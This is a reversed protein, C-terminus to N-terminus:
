LRLAKQLEALAEDYRKADRLPYSAWERYHALQLRNNKPSDFKDLNAERFEAARRLAAIVEESSGGENQLVACIRQLIDGHNRLQQEPDPFAKSWQLVDKEAQHLEAVSEKWLKMKELLDSVVYRSLMHENWQWPQITKEAMQKTTIAISRRYADLAGQYDGMAALREGHHQFVRVKQWLFYDSDSFEAVNSLQETLKNAIIDFKEAEAPNEALNVNDFLLNVTDLKLGSAMHDDPYKKLHQECSEIFSQLAAEQQNKPLRRIRDYRMTLQSYHLSQDNPFKSILETIITDAENSLKNAEDVRGTREIAISAQRLAGVLGQSPWVVDPYLRAQQEYMGRMNQYTKAADEDAGLQLQIEAIKWYGNARFEAAVATDGEIKTLQDFLGLVRTLFQRENETLKSTKSFLSRMVDDTVADLAARAQRNGETALEANKNALDRQEDARQREKSENDRSVVAQKEALIARNMQWLSVILGAILALLISSAAIVQRKNRRIFKRILYAANPPGAFVPEDALYRKIEMALQNATEYRRNRDKELCKLAIWDLDGRISRALRSPDSRRAAALSPRADSSSLRTSPKSPEEERIIRIVEDMAAKRIRQSDFPKLGTLLEYLIVGLAYIDARTDIDTGSYGAQEPAMYEITGIVAGFQTSLTRDHSNGALAKSVGFDIVKPVPRGDILTVLINTPKLDRHIIGKQHAHQVASCIQVFIELREETSLIAEDCFKTLPLGNVLEMAFYPRGDGTMGADIVRAINPHDMVALAQREHEFRSLVERSDMGTKILKLAVRRKVPETQKAVWVAGMGGEGLLRELTYPGISQGMNDHRVYDLTKSNDEKKELDAVAQKVNTAAIPSDLLNSVNHAKLLREIRKRLDPLEVCERDMLAAIEDPPTQLALEFLEEENMTIRETATREIAVKNPGCIQPWGLVVM